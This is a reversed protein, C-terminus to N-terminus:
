SGLKESRKRVNKGEVILKGHSNPIESFEDCNLHYVALFVEYVGRAEFYDGLERLTQNTLFLYGLETSWGELFFGSLYVLEM